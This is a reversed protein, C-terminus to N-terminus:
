QHIGKGSLLWPFGVQAQGTAVQNNDPNLIRLTCAVQTADVITAVESIEGQCRLEQGPFASRTVRWALRELRGYEGAWGTTLRALYNGILGRQVAVDPFGEALAQDKDFHIQHRNWTIASFMFLQSRTPTLRLEGLSAGATLARPKPSEIQLM